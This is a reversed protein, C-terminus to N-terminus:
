QLDVPRVYLEAADLQMQGWVMSGTSLGRLGAEDIFNQRARGFHRTHRQLYEAARRTHSPLRQLVEDPDWHWQGKHDTGYLEAVFPMIEAVDQVLVSPPSPAAAHQPHVRPRSTCPAACCAKMHACVCTSQRM